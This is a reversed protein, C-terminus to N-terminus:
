GATDETVGDVVVACDHVFNFWLGDHVVDVLEVKLVFLSNEDAWSKFYAPSFLNKLTNLAEILVKLQTKHIYFLISM